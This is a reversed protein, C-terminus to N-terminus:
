YGEIDLSPPGVNVNSLDMTLEIKEGAQVQKEIKTGFPHWAELRYSGAPVNDSFSGKTNTTGYHDTDVVLIYSFMWDHINCGLVVEGAKDFTVVPAESEGFLPIEFKKANSFSYVHHQINDKNIFKITSGTPIIKVIEEFRRNRQILETNVPKPKTNSGYLVIAVNTAPEGNSQKVTVNIPAAFSAACSFLLIARM